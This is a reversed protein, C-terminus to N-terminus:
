EINVFNVSGTMVDPKVADSCDVDYWTLSKNARVPFGSIIRLGSVGVPPTILSM